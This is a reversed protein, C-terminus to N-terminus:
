IDSEKEKEISKFSQFYKFKWLFLMFMQKCISPSYMSYTTSTYTSHFDMICEQLFCLLYSSDWKWTLNWFFQPVWWGSDTYINDSTFHLYMFGTTSTYSPRTSYTGSLSGLQTTSACSSDPCSYIRLYDYGSETAFETISITIFHGTGQIYTHIYTHIYLLNVAQITNRLMGDKDPLSWLHM